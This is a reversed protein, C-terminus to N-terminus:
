SVQILPTVTQNNRYHIREYEIPTHMELATHRWRRNHFIEVYEFTANALETRTKWKRRDLLEVQMRAWFAEMLANDFCNGVTGMWPVLGSDHARQTFAWCPADPHGPGFTYRYRLAAPPQQNGYGPRLHGTRRHGLQRNVLGRGTPQVRRAGSCLVGQRGPHSTRHLPRAPAGKRSKLQHTEGARGGFRVHLKWQM